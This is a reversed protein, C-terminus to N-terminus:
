MQWAHLHRQSAQRLLQVCTWVAPADGHFSERYYERSGALVQEYQAFALVAPTQGRWNCQTPSAKHCLLLQVLDPFGCTAALSLATARSAHSTDYWNLNHNVNAKHRILLEVSSVSGRYCTSRLALDEPHELHSSNPNAGYMLLLEMIDFASEADKNRAAWALTRDLCPQSYSWAGLSSAIVGIDPPFQVLWKLCPPRPDAVVSPVAPVKNCVGGMHSAECVTDAEFGTSEFTPERVHAHLSSLCLLRGRM